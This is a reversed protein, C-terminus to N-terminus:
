YNDILERLKRIYEPGTGCCGGVISAGAKIWIRYMTPMAQHILTQFTNAYGGIRQGTM